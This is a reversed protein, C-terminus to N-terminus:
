AMITSFLDSRKVGATQEIVTLYDDLAADGIALATYTSFVQEITQDGAYLPNKGTGILELQRVLAMFGEFDNNFISFSGDNGAEYESSRLNGPNHHNYSASGTPGQNGVDPAAWGEALSVGFAVRTLKSSIM